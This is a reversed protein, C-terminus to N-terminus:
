RNSGADGMPLIANCFPVIFTDIAMCQSVSELGFKKFGYM